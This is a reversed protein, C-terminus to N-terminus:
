YHNKRTKNPNRTKTKKSGGRPISSKHVRGHMNMFLKEADRKGVNPHVFPNQSLRQMLKVPLAGNTLLVDRELLSAAVQESLRRSNSKEDSDIDKKNRHISRLAPVLSLAGLAASVRNPLITSAIAASLPYATMDFFERRSSLSANKEFPLVVSKKTAAWYKQLSSQTPPLLHNHTGLLPVTKAVALAHRPVLEMDNAYELSMRRNFDARNSIYSFFKSFDSSGLYKHAIKEPTLYYLKRGIFGLYFVRVDKFLVVEVSVGEVTSFHTEGPRMQYHVNINVTPYDYDGYLNSSCKAALQLTGTKILGTDLSMTDRIYEYLCIGTLGLLDQRTKLEFMKDRDFQIYRSGTSSLAMSM